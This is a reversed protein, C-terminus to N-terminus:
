IYHNTDTLGMGRHGERREERSQHGCMQKRYRHTHKQKAYINVQTIKSLGSIFSIMYYKAKKAQSIENLM